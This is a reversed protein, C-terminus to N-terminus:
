FVYMMILYVLVKGDVGKTIYKVANKLLTHDTKYNKFYQEIIVYRYQQSVGALKDWTAYFQM